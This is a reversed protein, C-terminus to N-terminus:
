CYCCSYYEFKIPNSVISIRITRCHKPHESYSDRITSTAEASSLYQAKQAGLDHGEWFKVGRSQWQGGDKEVILLCSMTVHPLTRVLIDKTSCFNPNFFTGFLKTLIPDTVASINSVNLKQPHHNLTIKNYDMDRSLLQTTIVRDLQTYNVSQMYPQQKIMYYSALVLIIVTIM